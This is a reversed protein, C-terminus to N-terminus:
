TLDEMDVGEVVFRVTSTSESRIREPADLGLLKRRSESVKVVRDIAALVPGHDTLTVENGSSDVDRVVKGGSHALHRAQLVEQAAQHAVDLRALELERLEDAALGLARRSAELARSVDKCAAAPGSYGLASAIAAWPTGAVRMAVARARREAVLVRGSRTPRSM